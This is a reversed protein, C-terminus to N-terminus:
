LFHPPIEGRNALLRPKSSSTCPLTGSGVPGRLPTCRVGLQRQLLSWGSWGRTPAEPARKATVAEAQDRPQVETNGVRYVWGTYGGQYRVWGCARATALPAHTPLAMPAHVYSRKQAATPSGLPLLVCGTNLDWSQNYVTKYSLSPKCPRKVPNQSLKVM